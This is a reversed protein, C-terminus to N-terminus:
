NYKLLIYSVISDANAKSFSPHPPMPVDGWSGPGGIRIKESLKTKVADSANVYRKAIETFSPGVNREVNMHCTRCDSKSIITLGDTFDDAVQPYKTETIKKSTNCHCLVFLLACSIILGKLDNIKLYCFM